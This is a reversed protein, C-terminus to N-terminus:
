INKGNFLNNMAKEIEKMTIPCSGSYIITTRQDLTKWLGISNKIKRRKIINILYTFVKEM